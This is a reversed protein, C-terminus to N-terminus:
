RRGLAPSRAAPSNQRPSRGAGRGRRSHAPTGATKAKLLPFPLRSRPCNSACNPARPCARPRLRAPSGGPAPLGVSPPSSRVLVGSVPRPTPLVGGKVVREPRDGSRPECGLGERPNTGAPLSRGWAGTGKRPARVRLVASGRAGLGGPRLPSASRAVSLGTEGWGAEESEAYRSGLAAAWASHSFPRLGSRSSLPQAPCADLLTPQQTKERRVRKGTREEGPSRGGEGWGERRAGRRM